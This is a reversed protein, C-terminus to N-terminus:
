QDLTRPDTRRRFAIPLTFHVTTGVGPASEVWINGRHREVVRKAVALGIGSGVAAQARRSRAFLDFIRVAERPEIGIGNDAVTFHWVGPEERCAIEIRLPPEGRFRIANSVLNQFLQHLLGPYGLVVPLEGVETRGGAAELQGALGELTDRVVEGTDVPRVADGEQGVRAYALLGDVLTQMRQVGSRIGSMATAVGPDSAEISEELSAAYGSILQIPTSLGHSAVAAFEVLDIGGTLDRPEILGAALPGDGTELQALRLRAQRDPQSRPGLVVAISEPAAEPPEELFSAIREALDSGDRPVLFEEADLGALREPSSELLEAAARGAFVITGERDLVVVAAPIADLLSEFGPLEDERPM